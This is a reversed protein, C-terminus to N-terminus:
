ETPNILKDEVDEPASNWLGEFEGADLIPVSRMKEKADSAALDLENFKGELKRLHAYCGIDIAYAQFAGAQSKHTLAVGANHIIRYDLLRFILDRLDDDKKMQEESLMFVNTKKSMCFERIAYIGRMLGDQEDGESDQKLEAIRSEFNAKSVIRVDDKGIRNGGNGQVSGLVELFLSLTDRPVGGGAMVLRDFGEGKFIENAEGETLGAMRAFELYIRKNQERTRKFDAFTYDINIPQYDHRAQAGIPQGGRDSYLSSAHRLTALKFYLPLDKCLRHLYDVVFPQTSRTLHYLDDLQIYIAKVSTSVEFFERIQRKLEPLWTNLNQIKSNLVQYTREVEDKTKSGFRKKGGGSLNKGAFKGEVEGTSDSEDSRTHRIEESQDDAQKRRIELENRIKEILEKTRAKKGFWSNLHRQMEAFLADLIEILTNPFSHHKFEECNLYVVKVQDDLHRASQHLLLTKGCGRRAFVAHNQRACVDAVVNTVDIYPPPEAGGQQIRLNETIVKRLATIKAQEVTMSRGKIEKGGTQPAFRWGVVSLALLLSFFFGLGEKGEALPLSSKL